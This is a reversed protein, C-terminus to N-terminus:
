QIWAVIKKIVDTEIGNFGHYHFGECPDGKAQGGEVTIFEVKSSNSLKEMLKPMDTLNCDKCADTKHHVVLVPKTIRGLSMDSVAKGERNLM